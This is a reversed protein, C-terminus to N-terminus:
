GPREPWLKVEVYTMHIIVIKKCEKTWAPFFILGIAARYVTRTSVGLKKAVASAKLKRRHKEGHGKLGRQM